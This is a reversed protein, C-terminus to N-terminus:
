PQHGVMAQKRLAEEAAARPLLEYSRLTRDQCNALVLTGKRSICLGQVKGSNHVQV